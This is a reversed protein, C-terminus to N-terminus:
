LFSFPPPKKLEQLLSEGTQNGGLRVLSGISVGHYGATTGDPSSHDLGDPWATRVPYLNDLRYQILTHDLDFGICDYDSLRAM